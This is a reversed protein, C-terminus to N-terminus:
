AKGKEIAHIIDQTTSLPMFGFVLNRFTSLHFERNYTATADVPICVQYGKVFASRATTECCLNTMVGTIVLSIINSGSLFNGLETGEFADYETKEIVMFRDNELVGEPLDFDSSKRDLRYKWWRGMMSQPAPRDFHRTFIIPFGAVDFANVLKMINPLIAEVAPVYAHSERSTFYRQLDTVIIAMKGEDIKFDRAKPHAERIQQLIKETEDAINEITFYAEKAM